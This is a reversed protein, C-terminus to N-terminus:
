AASEPTRQGVSVLRADASGDMTREYALVLVAYVVRFRITACTGDLIHALASVFRRRPEGGMWDVPCASKWLRSRSPM